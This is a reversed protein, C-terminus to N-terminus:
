PLFSPLAPPADRPPGSLAPSAPLTGQAVADQRAKLAENERELAAIRRAQARARKRIAHGSFWAAVGGVLIGLYLPLVIALYLPVDITEAFPWLSITVTERNAVAFIAALLLLPFGVIWFIFKM